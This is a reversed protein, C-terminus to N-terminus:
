RRLLLHNTRYRRLSGVWLLMNSQCSCGWALSRGQLKLTHIHTHAPPSCRGWMSLVTAECPCLVFSSGLLLFFTTPPTCCWYLRFFVKLHLGLIAYFFNLTYFSPSLSCSFICYHSPPAFLFCLPLLSALGVGPLLRSLVQLENGPLGFHM